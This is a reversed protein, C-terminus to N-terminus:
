ASALSTSKCSAHTSDTGWRVAAQASAALTAESVFGCRSRQIGKSPEPDVSKTPELGVKRSNDTSTQGNGRDDVRVGYRLTGTAPHRNRSIM